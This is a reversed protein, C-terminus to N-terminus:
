ALWSEHHSVGTEFLVIAYPQISLTNLKNYCMTYYGYKLDQVRDNKYMMYM